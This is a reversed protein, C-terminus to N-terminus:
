DDSVLLGSAKIAAMIDMGGNTLSQFSRARGPVDASNIEDFSLNIERDLKERLEHLVLKQLPLLTTTLYVRFAERISSAAGVTYLGPPIGCASFIEYKVTQLLEVMAAPPTPGYRKALWDGQPAAGGSEMADAMSEVLHMKGDNNGIDLKLKDLTEDGGDVGPLPLFSGVPGSAESRLSAITAASLQGSLYAVSLPSIGRWPTDIETAYRLHLVSAAPLSVSVSESPGGTQVLYQWENPNPGGTISHSMAPLLQLMGDVVDIRFIAEGRRILSRGVLTFFAPTLAGAIADPATVEVGAFSRGVLGSATELHATAMPTSPTAVTGKAAQILASIFADSYSTAARTELEEIRATLIEPDPADIIDAKGFPWRM